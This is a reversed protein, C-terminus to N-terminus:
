DIELLLEGTFDSSCQLEYAQVNEGPTFPFTFSDVVLRNIGLLQLIECQVEIGYPSTCYQRLKEFDARPFTQDVPGSIQRGMFVGTITIEYDNQSWHEKVTGVFNAAKAPKRKVIDNSGSITVLPEYPFTYWPESGNETVRRFSLPFFHKSTDPEPELNFEATGSWTVEAIGQENEKGLFPIPPLVHKRLENQVVSLNQQSVKTGILSWLIKDGDVM